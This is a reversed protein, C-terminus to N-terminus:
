FPAKVSLKQQAIFNLSYNDRSKLVYYSKLTNCTVLVEDQDANHRQEEHNDDNTDCHADKLEDVPIFLTLSSVSM